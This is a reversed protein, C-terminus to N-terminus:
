SKNNKSRLLKQCWGPIWSRNSHSAGPVDAASDFIMEIQMNAEANQQKEQQAAKAVIAAKMLDQAVAELDSAQSPHLYQISNTAPALAPRHKMVFASSVESAGIIIVFIVLTSLYKM